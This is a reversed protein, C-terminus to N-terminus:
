FGPAYLYFLERAFGRRVACLGIHNPMTPFQSGLLCGLREPSRAIRESFELRRSIQLRVIWRLPNAVFQDTFCSVNQDGSVVRM